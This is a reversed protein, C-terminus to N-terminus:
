IYLHEKKSDFDFWMVNQHIKHGHNSDLNMFYQNKKKLSVINKMEISNDKILFISDPGDWFILKSNNEDEFFLICNASSVEVVFSRVKFNNREDLISFGILTKDKNISWNFVKHHHKI